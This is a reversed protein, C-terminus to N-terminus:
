KPAKIILSPNQARKYYLQLLSGELSVNSIVEVLESPRFRSVRQHYLHQMEWLSPCVTNGM